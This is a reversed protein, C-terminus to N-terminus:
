YELHVLSPHQFEVIALHIDSTNVSQRQIGNAHVVEGKFRSDTAQKDQVIEVPSLQLTNDGDKIASEASSVVPSLLLLAFPTILKM